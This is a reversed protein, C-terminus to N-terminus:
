TLIEVLYGFLYHRSSSFRHWEVVFLIGPM